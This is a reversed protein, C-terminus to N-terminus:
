KRKMLSSPFKCTSPFAAYDSLLAFALTLFNLWVASSSCYIPGRDPEKAQHQPEWGGAGEQGHLLSSCCQAPEQPGLLLRDRGCVTNKSFIWKINQYRMHLYWKLSNSRIRNGWIPIPTFLNEKGPGSM